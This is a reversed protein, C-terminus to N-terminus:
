LLHVHQKLVANIRVKIGVKIGQDGLVKVFPVGDKTSQYLTEDFLIAGSIYQRTPSIKRV